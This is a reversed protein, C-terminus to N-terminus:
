YALSLSVKSESLFNTLVILLKNSLILLLSFSSTIVQFPNEKSAGIALIIPTLGYPLNISLLYLSVSPLNLGNPLNSTAVFPIFVFM